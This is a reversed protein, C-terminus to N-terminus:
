ISLIQQYEEDTISTNKAKRKDQSIVKDKKANIDKTKNSELEQTNITQKVVQDNSNKDTKKKNFSDLTLIPRKEIPKM